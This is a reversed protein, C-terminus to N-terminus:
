IFFRLFIQAADDEPKKVKCMMKGGFFGCMYLLRLSNLRSMKNATLGSALKLFPSLHNCYHLDLCKKWYRTSFGELFFDINARAVFVLSSM